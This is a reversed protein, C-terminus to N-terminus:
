KDNRRPRYFSIRHNNFIIITIKRVREFKIMTVEYEVPTDPPINFKEVGQTAKSNLYLKCYENKTMKFVAQEVSSSHASLIEILILWNLSNLVYGVPIDKVCGAGAIFNVTREDFIQDQYKGKLSIEV